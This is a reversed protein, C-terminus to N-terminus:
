GVFVSLTSVYHLRKPPGTAALRAVERVGGINTARLDEFRRVLNVEAACHVIAEVAGVLRRWDESDLGLGPRSVDGCCVDVREWDAPSVSLRQERAVDRLRREAAVQNEGRLLCVIRVAPPTAALWSELVRCGLFGTAGTLLVLRPSRASRD